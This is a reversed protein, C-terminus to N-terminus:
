DLTIRLQPIQKLVEAPDLSGVRWDAMMMKEPPHTTCVALTRFGAESVRQIVSSSDEIVLCDAPSLTQGTSEAIRQMTLRYGSPDPKGVSVDEAATIIGFCDRLGIGELSSEIEQRLAASCIGLPYHRRVGRVFAEVGPLASVRRAHIFQRMRESKDALIRDSQGPALTRGRLEFLRGVSDKDDLGILHHYYEHEALDIGERALAEQFARFHLPESNVIVGDFDFLVARPWQKM